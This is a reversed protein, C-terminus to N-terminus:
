TEARGPSGTNWFNIVEDWRSAALEGLYPRFSDLVNDSNLLTNQIGELLGVVLIGIADANGRALLDEIVATVALLTKEDRRLFLEHAVYQAFIGIAVYQEPPDQLKSQRRWAEFHPTVSRLSPLVDSIGVPLLDSMTIGCVEGSQKEFQGVSNAHQAAELPAINDPRSLPKGVATKV